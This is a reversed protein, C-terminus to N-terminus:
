RREVEAGLRGLVAWFQPFSKCVTEAGDIESPGDAVLAAVAASMVMRHDTMGRLRAARPRAAGAIRLGAQSARVRAGFARALRATELRRDSEKHIVHPAGTLRSEGPTVAALAGALPYLDPCPTLDVRFPRLRRGSLEIGRSSTRVTCGAGSLLDLVALDAQPWATTIGDVRVRGQTVAAAAWLYAASSADGPVVSRAGRYRQAGAVVFQAGEERVRVGHQRAVAITARVYPESVMRGRVHVESSEELVPLTFLLASLFQSSDSADLDVRGGRIRGRIKLPFGARARTCEGGLARLAQLLPGMPRAGLRPAGTFRTSGSRLAALAAVFRLTTGSEGCEVAVEDSDRSAPYPEVTWGTHAQTLRDGFARLAGATRRTDDADLPRVITFRRRALHGVMLARHTYSKSPPARARGAVAGPRVTVRM